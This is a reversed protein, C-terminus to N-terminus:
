TRVLSVPLLLSAIFEAQWSRFRGFEFVGVAAHVCAGCTTTFRVHGRALTDADHMELHTNVPYETRLRTGMELTSFPLTATPGNGSGDDTQRPDLDRWLRRLSLLRRMPPSADPRDDLGAALVPRRQRVHLRVSYTSHRRPWPQLISRHRQTYRGRLMLQVVTPNSLRNPSNHGSRQNDDAPDVITMLWRVVLDERGFRSADHATVQSRADANVPLAVLFLEQPCLAPFTM